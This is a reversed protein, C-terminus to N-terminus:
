ALLDDTSSGLQCRRRATVTVTVQEAPDDGLRTQEAGAAAGEARAAVTSINVRCVTGSVGYAPGRAKRRFHVKTRFMGPSFEQGGTVTELGAHYFIRVAVGTIVSAVTGNTKPGVVGMATILGYPKRRPSRSWGGFAIKFSLFGTLKGIDFQPMDDDLEGKAKNKMRNAIEQLSAKTNGGWGKITFRRELM